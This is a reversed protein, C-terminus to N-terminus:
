SNSKLSCNFSYDGKARSMQSLTIRPVLITDIIFFPIRKLDVNKSLTLAISVIMSSVPILESFTSFM